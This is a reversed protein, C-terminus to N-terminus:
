TLRKRRREGRGQQYNGKFKRINQETYLSVQPQQHFFEIVYFKM